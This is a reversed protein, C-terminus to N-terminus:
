AGALVDTQFMQSIRGDARSIRAYLWIRQGAALAFVVPAVLPSPPPAANVGQILSILRWPGNFFNRQGNQPTGQFLQLWADDEDAWDMTDDYAVSITQGAETATIALTPDQEPIEFITPGDDIVPLAFAKRTTNSRLYHNFGTLFIAQGLRNTMTVSEGYLDWADRQAQSLEASWRTTLFSFAARLVVQRASRPNIPITRKRLYAGYRNRSFVLDGVSGSAEGVGGGTIILTM